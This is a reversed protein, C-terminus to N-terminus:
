LNRKVGRSDGEAPICKLDSVMLTRLQKFYLAGVFSDLMNLFSYAAEFLPRDM